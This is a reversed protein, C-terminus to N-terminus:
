IAQSHWRVLREVYEDLAVLHAKCHGAGPVSWLERPGGWQEYFAIGQESPVLRDRECVVFMAPIQMANALDIPRIQRRSHGLLVEASRVSARAAPRAIRPMRKVFRNIADELDAMPSDLSLSRIPTGQLAAYMVPSAGLSSAHVAIPTSAPLFQGFTQHAARFDATEFWGMTGVRGGSQGTARAQYLFVNFGNTWLGEALTWYDALSSKYGHVFLLSPSGPSSIASFGALPTGEAGSFSVSEWPVQSGGPPHEPRRPGALVPRAATELLRRSLGSHRIHPNRIDFPLIVEQGNALPSPSESNHSLPRRIWNSSEGSLLAFWM